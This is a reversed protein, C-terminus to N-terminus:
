RIVVGTPARPVLTNAGSGIEITADSTSTLAGDTATLRLTYVGGTSFTATTMGQNQDAFSVAGHGSVVSWRLTLTNSPLADDAAYGSLKATSGSDVSFSPGAYVMPRKNITVISPASGPLSAVQVAGMDGAGDRPDQRGILPSGPGPAYVWRFYSLMQSVKYTGSVIDGDNFPFGSDDPSGFGTKGSGIPLPGRFQPDVGGNPCSGLDNGGWGPQCVSRGPVGIDYTVRRQTNADYFVNNFDM